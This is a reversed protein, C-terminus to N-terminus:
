PYYNRLMLALTSVTATCSESIELIDLFEAVRLTERHSENWLKDGFINHKLTNVSVIRCSYGDPQRACCLTHPVAFKIQPSFIGLWAKLHKELGAPAVRGASDGWGITGARCDIILCAWHGPPSFSITAVRINPSSESILSGLRQVSKPAKKVYDCAIPSTELSPSALIHAMFDSQIIETRPTIHSLTDRRLFRTASLMSDLHADSLWDQSLFVAMDMISLGSGLGKVYNNWPVTGLLKLVRAIFQTPIGQQQDLWTLAKQWAKKATDVEVILAWTGLADFPLFIDINDWHQVSVKGDLMAQGACSSLVQLIDHSPVPLRLCESSTHTARNHSFISEVNIGPLSPVIPPTSFDLLHIVPLLPSPLLSRETPLATTRRCLEQSVYEPVDRYKKGQGIWLNVDGCENVTLDTTLVHQAASM